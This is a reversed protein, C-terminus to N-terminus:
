GHGGEVVLVREGLTEEVDKPSIPGIRYVRPPHAVVDVVTSSTGYKCPGADLVLDVAAGLQAVVEGATRPSPAGSINASTGTIAGGLGEALALAVKHDPMRLGIKGTGMTVLDPVSPKAKVIITLPGPWFREILREAKPDIVGLREAARVGSILVPIAKGVRRKARYLRRLAGEDFPNAGLGYVTDTPYAVLGGGKLVALAEEVIGPQPREPDIKLVRPLGTGGM